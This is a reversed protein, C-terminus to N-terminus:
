VGQSANGVYAAQIDQKEIGADKIAINVAEEVLSKL